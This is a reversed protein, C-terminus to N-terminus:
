INTTRLINLLMDFQAKDKEAIEALKNLMAALDPVYASLRLVAKNLEDANSINTQQGQQMNYNPKKLNSLWGMVGSILADQLEPKELLGGIMGAIGTPKDSEGERTLAEDEYDRLQEKLEENEAKLERIQEQLFDLTKQPAGYREIGGMPTAGNLQFTINQGDYRTKLGKRGGGHVKNKIVQLLYINTNATNQEISTLADKLVSLGEDINQGIYEYRM